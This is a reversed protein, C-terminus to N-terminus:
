QWNVYDISCYESKQFILTAREAATRLTSFAASDNPPDKFPSPLYAYM